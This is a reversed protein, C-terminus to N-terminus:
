RRVLERVRDLGAGVLKEQAMMLAAALPLVFFKRSVFVGLTMGLFTLGTANDKLFQELPSRTSDTRGTSANRRSVRRRRRGMRGTRSETGLGTETEKM